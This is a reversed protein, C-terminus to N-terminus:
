FNQSAPNAELTLPLESIRPASITKIAAEQSELGPSQAVVKINGSTTQAQVVAMLLGNFASGQASHEPEHSSPDGSSVGSLTGPGSVVFAVQNTATPILRGQADVVAVKVMSYEGYNAPMASRTVTLRLAAPAGTTEVKDTCILKGYTYGRAELTGPEYPVEWEVGDKDGGKGFGGELRPKRGLSRGNLFLEVEKLNTTAVVRIKKGESRAWNWHPLLHLVPQATWVSQYYYTMDKWFGCRDVIGFSSNIVPWWSQDAEGAYDFGTWVFYGSLWPNDTINSWFPAKNYSSRVSYNKGHLWSPDLNYVGRTGSSSTFETIVTPQQPYNQHYKQWQELTGYNWGHVDIEGNVGDRVTSRMNAYTTLRTPDLEHALAVVTKTMRKAIPQNQDNEENGTSWIIISPHNRDRVILDRLQELAFPTSGFARTEAMVLFGKEDCADMLAPDAPNHSMRIANVGFGKLVDLRYDHLSRTMATGVTPFDPHLCVGKLLTPQGNLLFGRQPDFAITRFGFRTQVEDVAHGSSQIRTRLTYLSPADPSWLAVNTVSISVAITAQHRASIQTPPTTAVAVTKGNADLVECRATIERPEFDDNRVQVDAKVVAEKQPVNGAFETHVFIGDPAVAVPDTVVLRVSRNIGAGEYWWGERQSADARVVVGNQGGFEILDTIDYRFSTYGSEHDGLYYSNVWVKADRFVGNFELWVRKGAWAAPIGLKRWYWGITTDPFGDGVPKFAAGGPANKVPSLDVVWDHPLRVTVAKINNFNSFANFGKASKLLYFKKGVDGVKGLAFSWDNDLSFMQRVPSIGASSSEMGINPMDSVSGYSSIAPMLLHAMLLYVLSQVLKM